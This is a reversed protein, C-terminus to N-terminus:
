ARRLLRILEQCAIYINVLGLGTVAGRFYPDGWIDHLVPIVAQFYNIDWTDDMWPFIVLFLGIEFAFIAFCISLLRSQWTRRPKPAEESVPVAEDQPFDADPSLPTRITRRASPYSIRDLSRFPL